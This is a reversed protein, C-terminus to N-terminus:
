NYKIDTPINNTIGYRILYKIINYRIEIIKYIRINEMYYNILVLSLSWM